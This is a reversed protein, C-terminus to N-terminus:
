CRWTAARADTHVTLDGEEADPGPLLHLLAGALADFLADEPGHGTAARQLAADVPDTPAPLGLAAPSPRYRPNPTFSGPEGRGDVRWAGVVAYPPVTGDPDYAPDIEYLWSGPSRRALARLEPTIRPTLAATRNAPM